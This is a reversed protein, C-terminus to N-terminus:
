AVAVTSRKWNAEGMVRRHRRSGRKPQMAMYHHEDIAMCQGAWGSGGQWMLYAGTTPQVDPLPADLIGGIDYRRDGPYKAPWYCSPLAIGSLMVGNVMRGQTDLSLLDGVEVAYSRGDPFPDTYRNLYPDVLMEWLEHSGVRSITEGDELTTRVFNKGMPLGESTLDHYGLAGAVDADDLWVLQEFGAPPTSGRPVQVINIPGIAWFSGYLNIDSQYVAIWPAIEADTLLTSANLFAVNRM